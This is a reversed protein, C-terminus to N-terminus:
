KDLRYEIYAQDKLQRLWLQVQQEMKRQHLIEKAKLLRQEKQSDYEQRELVELIHWGFPSKFPQSVQKLAQQNMVTEFAPVLDGPKVWNLDGGNIASTKDDSYTQALSSFDTGALIQQRISLLKQKAMEDNTMKDTKILIHRVHTKTQMALTQGEVEVLQIIHFGSASQLIDSLQQPKMEPVITAFLSPIQDLGRWGLDGGELAHQGDSYRIAMEEFDAGQQLKQYLNEAKERTQQIEEPSPAEPLAILIHRLRYRANSSNQQSTALFNKVEQETIIIKKAVQQAHLKKLLLENRIDERFRAFDGQNDQIVKRFQFLTLGNKKAINKITQNLIQDDIQIGLLQAIQLQLRNEVLKELVQTKLINDPPLQHKGQEAFRQKLVAMTQQLESEVVVDDNVIAVIRDIEEAYALSYSKFLLAFTLIITLYKM